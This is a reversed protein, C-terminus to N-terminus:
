ASFIPLTVGALIDVRHCLARWYLARHTKGLAVCMQSYPARPTICALDSVPPVIRSLNTILRAPTRSLM